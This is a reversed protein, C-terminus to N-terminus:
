RAASARAHARAAVGPRRRGRARAPQRRAPGPDIREQLAQRHDGVRELLDDDAGAAEALAALRGFRPRQAIRLLAPLAIPWRGAATSRRASWASISACCARTTAPTPTRTPRSRRSLGRSSRARSRRGLDPEVPRDRRRLPRLAVFPRAARPPSRRAPRARAGRRGQPRARPDRRERESSAAPSCCGGRARRRARVRDRRRLAPSPGGGAAAARPRRRDDAAGRVHAPWARERM